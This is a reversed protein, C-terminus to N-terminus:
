TFKVIFLTLDDFLDASKSFNRVESLVKEKLAEAKLRHNKEIIAQLRQLGFQENRKNESEIIGDTYMILIDNKAYAISKQQYSSNKVVGLPKGRLGLEQIKNTKASYFLQEFHGANSFTISKEAADIQAIFATAFMGSRSNDYIYKNAVTCIQKLDQSEQVAVRILSRCISMFVTAPIGKGSIDSILCVIQDKKKSIVDYFDGGVKKSSLCAAAFDIGKMEPFEKPLVDEQLQATIEVEADLLQKEKLAEKMLLIHYGEYFEEAITTLIEAASNPFPNNDTPESISIFGANAGDYLIPVSIFSPSKYRLRKNKGFRGDKNIDSCQVPIDNKLIWGLVNQTTTVEGNKLVNKNFSSGGCFRYKKSSTDKLIISIRSARTNAAIIGVTEKILNERSISKNVLQSIGYIAELQRVKLKSAEFLERNNIAIAAFDAFTGLLSLDDEEFKERDLSNMIELVGIIRDHIKLPVCALNNTQMATKEDVTKYIRSDGSNNVILPKGTVAVLGAVGKGLPVRIEDLVASNETGANNNFYLEKKKQDIFLLSAAETNFFETATRIITDLLNNIEIGSNIKETLALLLNIREASFIVEKPM